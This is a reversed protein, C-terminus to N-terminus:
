SWQLKAESRGSTLEIALCQTQLVLGFEPAYTAPEVFGNGSLVQFLVKQGLPAYIYWDNLNVKKICVSPHLIFRAISRHKSGTVLDSITLENKTMNWKRHHIPKGKLRSYGDHSCCVLIEDETSKIELGFPKARRAVRFGSWVESSSTGDVEVTSHAKTHRERLRELGTGYVSTGGNVIIRQEFLSLEFSLTDAHAHGPLYDPGIPAVDLFVRVDNSILQIYGSEKLPNVILASVFGKDDLRIGLSLAYSLLSSSTASIKFAADNFLAIEGDPHTMKTLWQLMKRSATEWELIIGTEISGKYINAINILDLLDELIIAHYMTSREFHGGDPLIQEPLEQHLISLGLNLWKKAEDGQFFLGAFILAKANALLHNGLLYWEIRCSLFRTQVALSYICVEPLKNGALVWKIWNVIRLSTPYPEWGVGLAPPNKEVWNKLLALHWGHRGSASSANLDDFYHQNYRWLTSRGLGSWGFDRLSGPEGLFFFEGFGYMSQRKEVPPLWNGLIARFFPPPGFDPNPRLLRFRLREYIQRFKLYRVTNLLLVIKRFLNM